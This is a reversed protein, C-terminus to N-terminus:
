DEDLLKELRSINERATDVQRSDGNWYSVFQEYSHIAEELLRRRQSASILKGSGVRASHLDGLAYYAQAFSSDIKLASRCEEIAKEYLGKSAYAAALSLYAALFRPDAELVLRYEEIASDFLRRGFYVDGLSGHARPHRPNIRLAKRLEFIAEDYKGMRVYLVGLNFHPEEEARGYRIAKKFERIASRYDGRDAYIIGLDGYASAFGPDIELASRYEKIAREERGSWAYIRGLLEHSYALDPNVDLAAKTEREAERYLGLNLLIRARGLNAFPYKVKRLLIKSAAWRLWKGGAEEKGGTRGSPEMARGFDLPSQGIISQNQPTNPVFVTAIEDLYVLSWNKDAYLRRILGVADPSVHSLLACNIEYREVVEDLLSPDAVIRRYHRLFSPDVIRGDIFNKKGPYCRWLFYGGIDYDNFINGPIGKELIFDVAKEPFSIESIGLGFRQPRGEQIYYSNSVVRPIWGLCFLILLAQIVFEGVAWSTRSLLRSKPWKGKMATAFDALNLAMVPATLPAFFFINRHATASLFLFAIWVLLLTINLRRLNLVFTLASGAIMVKYLLLELYYMEPSFPSVWEAIMSFPRESGEAKLLGTLRLLVQPTRFSLLGAVLALGGFVLLRRYSERDMAQARQSVGIRTRNVAEGVLYCAILVMGVVHGQHMNAWLIQILPLVFLLNRKGSRYRELVYLDLTLFLLSFMYPRLSFWNHTTFGAFVLCGMLVTPNARRYGTLYLIAFSAVLILTKFLVLGGIGTLSCFAYLIVQSLWQPLLWLDIGLGSKDRATYSFIDETVLERGKLTYEGTKLHWWIDTDVVRHLSFVAILLFSIIILSWTLIARLRRM